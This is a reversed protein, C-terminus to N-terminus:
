SIATKRRDTAPEGTVQPRHRPPKPTNQGAPTFRGTLQAELGDLIAHLGFEFSHEPSAAYDAAPSDLRARLRPYQMAIGRAEAMHDRIMEEANGGGRNLKRTLSAVAAPGLANGLVYTFVATAAQDAQEAPLGAAEYIALLHDDHRAKGPGNVLYSGFAQVLWPHRTLMSHLGTAMASAAARWGAAAPDPLAVEGWVQDGALAILNDRSAVHWYVATAASGLRRGLARMNLGGLGEADLLGIAATVIKERTLTDRPM